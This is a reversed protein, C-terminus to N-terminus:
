VGFRWRTANYHAAVEAASIERNYSRFVAIDGDHGYNSGTFYGGLRATTMTPITSTQGGVANVEVGDNYIRKIGTVANHTFVWHHWGQYITSIGFAQRNFPSGCDWYVNGDVWPLHLNLDQSSNNSSAAFISSTQQTRGFNWFVLSIENGPQVCRPTLSIDSGAPQVARFAARHTKMDIFSSGSGNITGTIGNLRSDNVVTGAGSHTMPKAFDIECVLGADTVVPSIVDPTSQLPYRIIVIGAAGPSNTFPVDERRGGGGGGGTNPTAPRAVVGGRGTSATAGGGLGGVGVQVGGGGGAYWTTIGSIDSRIGIGGWGGLAGTASRPSGGLAGAGGGGGSAPYGGSQNVGDYGGVGGANGFGGSASGPQQAAGGFNNLGDGSFSGGGGGGSGGASGSGRHGSGGGGGIGTLGFASSSGGNNGGFGAEGGGGVIITYAQSTVTTTGMVVGGAGGGAGDDYFNGSGGGGGGVIM